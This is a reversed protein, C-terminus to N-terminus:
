TLQDRADYNRSRRWPSHRRRPLDHEEEDSSPTRSRTFKLAVEKKPKPTAEGDLAAGVLGLGAIMSKHIAYRPDGALPPNAALYTTAEMVASQPPKPM